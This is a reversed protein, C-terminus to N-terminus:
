VTVNMANRRDPEISAAAGDEEDSAARIADHFCTEVCILKYKENNRKSNPMTPLMNLMSTRECRDRRDFEHAQNNRREEMKLRMEIRDPRAVRMM